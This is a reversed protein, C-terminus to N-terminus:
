QTRYASRWVSAYPEAEAECTPKKISKGCKAFRVSLDGTSYAQGKESKDYSNIFRQPVLALNSLITPHWQVIHEQLLKNSASEELACSTTSVLAHTEAKQFNYSRYTPDFWTDLFFRSWESNRVLWSNTALGDKDQTVVFHVDEAKLHSFTHIISDPPVVPQDVIMKEELKAAAMIDREIAIAPNMIFTDTDVYWFYPADPFQTLAHRMAVVKTWSVPAKKLDYEGVKPFFVAYGPCMRDTLRTRPVLTEGEVPVEDVAAWRRCVTSKRM